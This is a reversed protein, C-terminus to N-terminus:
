QEVPAEAELWSGQEGEVHAEVREAAEELLEEPDVRRVLERPQPQVGPDRDDHEDERGREEDPPLEEVAALRLRPARPGRPLHRVPRLHRNRAAAGLPVCNIPY